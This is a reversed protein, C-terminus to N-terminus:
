NPVKSWDRCMGLFSRCLKGYEVRLDFNRWSGQAHHLLRADPDTIPKSGMNGYMDRGPSYIIHTGFVIFYQLRPLSYRFGTIPLVLVDDVLKVRGEDELGSLANWRLGASKELWTKAAVTFATPGTLILPDFHRLTSQASESTLSGNSNAAISSFEALLNDMFRSLIPHEPVFAFAWQTLQVPYEYGM